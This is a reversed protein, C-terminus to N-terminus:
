VITGKIWGKSYIIRFVWMNLLLLKGGEIFYILFSKKSTKKM